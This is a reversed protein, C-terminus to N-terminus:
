SSAKKEAFGFLYGAVAGLVAMAPETGKIESLVLVVVLTIVAVLGIIRISNAGFGQERAHLVRFALLEIILGFVIVALALHLKTM